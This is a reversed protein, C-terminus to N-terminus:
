NSIAHESLDSEKLLTGWGSSESGTGPDLGDASDAAGGRDAGFNQSNM